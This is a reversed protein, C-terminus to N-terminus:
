KFGESLIENQILYTVLENEQCALSKLLKVTTNGKVKATSTWYTRGIMKNLKWTTSRVWRQIM